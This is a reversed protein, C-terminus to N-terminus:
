TNALFAEVKVCSLKCTEFHFASISVNEKKVLKVKFDICHSKYKTYIKLLFMQESM